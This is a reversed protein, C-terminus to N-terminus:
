GSLQKVLKVQNGRENYEVSDFASLAMMLGRGHELSLHEPDNLGAM